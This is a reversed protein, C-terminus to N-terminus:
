DVVLPRGSLHVMLGAIEQKRGCIDTASKAPFPPAAKVGEAASYGIAFRSGNDRRFMYWWAGSGASQRGTFVSDRFLGALRCFAHYAPRPRLCNSDSDDVLGFGRAALRWWFVRDVMGSCVSILIYRVMYDAYDDESVSPDNQRDGPSEYPSTVPSYAGTGQLPWNVESIVVEDGCRGSWRSIARLLVCKDLTSFGSQLNEPAGRRDVYLHHSLASFNFGDPISSLVSVLYTYEFDIVAPGMLRISPYQRAAEIATKVFARCELHSWIGWKVRNIAHGLEVRETKGALRPLTYELFEQWRGPEIISRRDQLLAANVKHGGRILLDLLSLSRDWERRGGFVSCRVMVPVPGVSALLDLEAQGNVMDPGVSLGLRDAMRVESAFCKERLRRCERMVPLVACATARAISWHRGWTMYRSRDKSRMVNIPQVSRTDWVWMDCEAPYRVAMEAAERSRFTRIPHRFRRTWSHFAYWRRYFREWRQFAAPPVHGFYMEKFVRLLDSPLYIRSIDRARRRDTVPVSTRARNLDVFCVGKWQNEGNRHMLINQNGLDNHIFGADHLLDVARAVTDLLTMLHVCDPDEAFIRILEDKFSTLGEEYVVVYYSEVLRWGQKRELYAVSRPTPVHMSELYRAALWTRCAKSGRFLNLFDFLFNQRGFQKVMWSQGGEEFRVHYNTNRGSSLKKSKPGALIRPLDALRELIPFTRFEEAVMGTYEGIRM